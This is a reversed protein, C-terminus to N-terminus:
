LFSGFRVRFDSYSNSIRHRLKAADILHGTMYEVEWTSWFEKGRLNKLSSSQVAEIRYADAFHKCVELHFLIYPSILCELPSVDSGWRKKYFQKKGAVTCPTQMGFTEFTLDYISSPLLDQLEGGRSFVPLFPYLRCLLPKDIVGTCQGLLQCNTYLFSVAGENDLPFSLTKMEERPPVKGHESLFNYEDHMYIITTGKTPTFRFDFDPHSNSNCCFGGNCTTWCGDEFVYATKHITAWDAKWKTTGTNNRRFMIKFREEESGLFLFGHNQYFRIARSNQSDVSLSWGESIPESLLISLLQGAVGSGRMEPIVALHSLYKSRPVQPIETRFSRLREILLSSSNSSIQSLLYHLSGQKRMRLESSPYWAMIGVVDKADSMVALCDSLECDEQLFESAIADVVEGRNLGIFFHPTAEIVLSAAQKRLPLDLEKCKKLMNHKSSRQGMLRRSFTRHSSKYLGVILRGM